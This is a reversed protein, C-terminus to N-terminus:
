HKKLKVVFSVIRTVTTAGGTPRFALAATVPVGKRARLARRLAKMAAATPKITFRATGPSSVLESGRAFVVRTPLCRGNLRVSGAKCRSNRAAFVGFRGNQFTLLWSFRGPAFLPVEFTVVGTSSDIAARPAGFDREAPPGLSSILAPPAVVSVTHSVAASQGHSDTVTLTVTYVGAEGYAHRTATLSSSAGDGFNWSYRSITGASASANFSIQVGVTAPNPASEFAASLTPEGVAITQEVPAASAGTFSDRASMTVKYFGPAAYVHSPAFGSGSGGDGFTWSLTLGSYRDVAEGEFSVPAGAVPAASTAEFVAGEIPVPKMSCAKAGNDWESQIYYHDGNIAQDFLSGASAEGGLTPSFANPDTEVEAVPSYSNCKDGIERGVKDFWANLRPDTAAEIYEHSVYKLAVDAYRTSANTGATDGNPHQIAAHADTQCGKANKEDLLSFPIDSYIVEGPGAGEVGHYACFFNNSCVQEGKEEAEFCTVVKHPFLIFYQQAAGTPLKNASIYASLQERVQKDTLCRTYPPGQDGGKPVSCGSTPYVATDEHEDAFTASYAVNGTGDTYQGAVAFVNSALGSDHAADTFFNGVVSKTTATFEKGPDWYILHSAVSHMVPGGNYLMQGSSDFPQAGSAGPRAYARAFAEARASSIPQVGYPRGGAQVVLARADPAVGGVLLLM